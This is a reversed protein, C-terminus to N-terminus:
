YITLKFKLRADQVRGVLAVELGRKGVEVFGELLVVRDLVLVGDCGELVHQERFDHEVPLKLNKVEINLCLM